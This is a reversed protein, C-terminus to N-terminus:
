ADEKFDDFPSHKEIHRFFINGFHSMMCQEAADWIRSFGLSDGQLRKFQFAIMNSGKIERVYLGILFEQESFGDSVKM